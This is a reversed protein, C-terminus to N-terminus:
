CLLDLVSGFSATTCQFTCKEDQAECSFTVQPPGDNKLQDIIKPNTVDCMQFNQKVVLSEKYCVAGERAREDDEPMMAMCANDTQCVNCNIGGWGENCECSEVDDPRPERQDGDPLAGCLPTACDDGGFGPPCSCKGNFKNCTAFQHCKDSDTNCNFCSPCPPCGDPRDDFLPNPSQRLLHSSSANRYAGASWPTCALGVLLWLYRPLRM